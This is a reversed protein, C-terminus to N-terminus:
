QVFRFIEDFKLLNKVKKRWITQVMAGNKQLVTCILEELLLLELTTM